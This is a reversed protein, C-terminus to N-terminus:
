EQINKKLEALSKKVSADIMLDDVAVVVGGILNEDIKKKLEVKGKLYKNLVEVIQKENDSNLPHSSAVEAQKIGKSELEKKHFEAEIEGFMRLDNNESLIRVFNDLIKDLDKPSTNIAVEHLAAAYQRASFKMPKRQM